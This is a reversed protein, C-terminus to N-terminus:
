ALSDGYGQLTHVIRSRVGDHTHGVTSDDTRKKTQCKAKRGGFREIKLHIVATDGVEPPREFAVSADHTGIMPDLVRLSLECM